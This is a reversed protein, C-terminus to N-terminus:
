RPPMCVGYPAEFLKTGSKTMVVGSLVCRAGDWKPANDPCAVCVNNEAKPTSGPLAHLETLRKWPNCGFTPWACDSAVCTGNFKFLGSPHGLHGQKPQSESICCFSAAPQTGINGKNMLLLCLLM